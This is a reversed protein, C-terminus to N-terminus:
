TGASNALSVKGLLAARSPVLKMCRAAVGDNRFLSYQTRLVTYDAEAIQVFGMSQSLWKDRALINSADLFIRQVGMQM